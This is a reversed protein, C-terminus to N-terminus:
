HVALASLAIWGPQGRRTEKKHDQTHMLACPVIRKVTSRSFLSVTASNTELVVPIRDWCM